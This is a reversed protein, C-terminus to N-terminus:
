TDNICTMMEAGLNDINYFIPMYYIDYLMHTLM